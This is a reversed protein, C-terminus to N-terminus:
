KPKFPAATFDDSWRKFAPHYNFKDILLQLGSAHKAKAEDYLGGISTKLVSYRADFPGIQKDFDACWARQQESDRLLAAKEKELREIDAGFDDVGEKDAKIEAELAALRVELTDILSGVTATTMNLAAKRRDAEQYFSM